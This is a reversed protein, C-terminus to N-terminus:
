LARARSRLCNGTCPRTRTLSGFSMRPGAAAHSHLLMVASCSIPTPQRMWRAKWELARVNAADVNLTRVLHDAQRLSNARRDLHYILLGVPVALVILVLPILLEARREHKRISERLKVGQLDPSVRIWHIRSEYYPGDGM